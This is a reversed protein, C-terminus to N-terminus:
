QAPYRGDRWGADRGCGDRRSVLARVRMAGRGLSVCGMARWVARALVMCWVLGVGFRRSCWRAGCRRAGLRRAGGVDASGHAWLQGAGCRAMARVLVVSALVVSALVECAMVECALVECALMVCTLLLGVRGVRGFGARSTTTCRM